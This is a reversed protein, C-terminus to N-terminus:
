FQRYDSYRQDRQVGRVRIRRLGNVYGLSNFTVAYYIGAVLTDSTYHGFPDTFGSAVYNGNVDFFNVSVGPLGAGTAFDTVRGSVAGGGPTVTFDIGTLIAGATITLPSGSRVDCGVCPIGNYLQNVFRLSNVT